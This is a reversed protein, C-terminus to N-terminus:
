SGKYRRRPRLLWSRTYFPIDVRTSLEHKGYKFINKLAPKSPEKDPQQFTIFLKLLRAIRIDMDKVMMLEKETLMPGHKYIYYLINEVLRDSLFPFRELQEKTATNINIPHEKLEALDEMLNQWNSSSIEDNNDVLQEIINEWSEQASLNDVSFVISLCAILWTKLWRNM